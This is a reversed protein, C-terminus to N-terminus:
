VNEATLRCQVQAFKAKVCFVKLENRGVEKLEVIVDAYKCDVKCALVSNKFGNFIYIGFMLVFVLIIVRHM